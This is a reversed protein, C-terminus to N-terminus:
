QQKLEARRRAQINRISNVKRDTNRKSKWAGKTSYVHTGRYNVAIAANVNTVRSLEKTQKHKITKM